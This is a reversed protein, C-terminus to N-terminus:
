HLQEAPHRDQCRERPQGELPQGAGALAPLHAVATGTTSSSAAPSSNKTTSDPWSATVRSPVSSRATPGPSEKPSTASSRETGRVALTTVVPGLTRSLM